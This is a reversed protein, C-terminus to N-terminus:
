KRVRRMWAKKFYPMTLTSLTFALTPVVAALWPREVKIVYLFVGIAGYTFMAILIRRMWSMEWSKDLEVNANREEIRQVRQELSEM